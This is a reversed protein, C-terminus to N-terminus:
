IVKAITLRDRNTICSASELLLIDCKTNGSGSQLIQLVAIFKHRVKYKVEYCSNETKNQLLQCM